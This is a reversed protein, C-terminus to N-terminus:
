HAGADTQRELDHILAQILPRQEVKARNLAYRAKDLDAQLDNRLCVGGGTIHISVSNASIEIM